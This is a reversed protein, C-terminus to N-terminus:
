ARRIHLPDVEVRTVRGFLEVEVEARPFTDHAAQIMRRFTVHQNQLWEAFPGHVVHLLEGNRYLSLEEGRKYREIEKQAEREIGAAWRTMNAELRAPIIQFTSALYKYQGVTRILRHYQDLACDLFIYNPLLPLDELKPRRDKGRSVTEVKRPVTAAYGDTKLEDRVDFEHGARSYLIAQMSGRVEERTPQGM